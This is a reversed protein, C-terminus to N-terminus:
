LNSGGGKLRMTSVLCLSSHRMNSDPATATSQLDDTLAWNIMTETKIQFLESAVMKLFSDSLGKM